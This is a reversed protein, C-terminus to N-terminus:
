HFLDAFPAKAHYVQSLLVPRHTALHGELNELRSHFVALHDPAELSFALRQGEHLM